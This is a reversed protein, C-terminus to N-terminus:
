EALNMKIGYIRVPIMFYPHENLESDDYRYLWGSSPQLTTDDVYEFSRQMMFTDYLSGKGSTDLSPTTCVATRGKPSRSIAIPAGEDNTVSCLIELVDYDASSLQIPVTGYEGNNQSWLLSRQEIGSENMKQASCGCLVVTVLLM